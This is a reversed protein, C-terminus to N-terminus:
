RCKLEHLGLLRLEKSVILSDIVSHILNSAAASATFRSSSSRTCCTSKALAAQTVRANTAHYYKEARPRCSECAAAPLPECCLSAEGLLLRACATWQLSFWQLAFALSRQSEHMLNDGAAANFLAEPVVSNM